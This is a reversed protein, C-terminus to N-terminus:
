EREFTIGIAGTSKTNSRIWGKNKILEFNSLLKEFNSEM